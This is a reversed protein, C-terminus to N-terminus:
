RNGGINPAIVPAVQRGIDIIKRITPLAKRVENAVKDKLKKYFSGFAM